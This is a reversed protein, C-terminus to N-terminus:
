NILHTKKKTLSDSHFLPKIFCKVAPVIRLGGKLIMFPFYESLKQNVSLYGDCLLGLCLM